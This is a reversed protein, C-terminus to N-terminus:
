KRTVNPAYTINPKFSYYNMSPQGTRFGGSEIGQKVHREALIDVPDTMVLCM